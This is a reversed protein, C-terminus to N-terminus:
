LTDGLILWQTLFPSYYLQVATKPTLVTNAAGRGVFQKEVDSAGDQNTLTLDFLGSNYLWLTRGKNPAVLGTISYPANGGVFFVQCSSFTGGPDWNNQSATISVGYERPFHLAGGIISDGGIWLPLVPEANTYAGFNATLIRTANNKVLNLALNYRTNSQEVILDDVPVAGTPGSVGNIVSYCGDLNIGATCNEVHISTAVCQCSKIHLGNVLPGSVGITARTVVNDGALSQFYIGTTAGAAQPVVEVNEVTVISAGFFHIGYTTFQSVVCRWVGSQENAATSYVVTGARSNADLILNEVRCGFVLPDAARGLRIMPRGDTPFTPSAVIRGADGRGVGALVVKNPVYITDSIVLGGAPVYVVGEEDEAADLALQTAQTSDTVGDLVAGFQLVNVFWTAFAVASATQTQDARLRRIQTQADQVAGQTADFARQTSPDAVSDLALVAVSAPRQAVRGAM